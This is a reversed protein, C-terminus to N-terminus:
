TPSNWPEVKWHARDPHALDMAIVRGRPANDNTQAYLLSGVVAIPDYENEATSILDLVRSNSSSLDLMALMNKGPVGTYIYILVYRGGEM